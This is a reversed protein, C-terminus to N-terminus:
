NLLARTGRLRSLRARIQEADKARPELELVRALDTMAAANGGLEEYLGARERLIRGDSPSLIVLREVASLARPLDRRGLYLARLNHLMRVLIERASAPQLHRASLRADKSVTAALRKQLDDKGLLRGRNFPDVILEGEDLPVKCLFHGPFSVGFAHLGCRRGVELYVLSLTIPIGVRRELVENLFSNRPDYYDADNGRFGLERFLVLGLRGATREPLAGRPLGRLVQEAIEDLKRLSAAEDLDPYEECAIALAARALDIPEKAALSRLAKRSQEFPDV